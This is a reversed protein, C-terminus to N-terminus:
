FVYNVPEENLNSSTVISSSANLSFTSHPSALTSISSSSSNSNAAVTSSTSKSTIRQEKIEAKGRQKSELFRRRLEDYEKQERMKVFPEAQNLRQIKQAELNRWRQIMQEMGQFEIPTHPLTQLSPSGRAPSPLSKSTNRGVGGQLIVM